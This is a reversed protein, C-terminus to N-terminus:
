STGAWGRFWGNGGVCGRCAAVSMGGYVGWGCGGAVALHGFKAELEYIAPALPHSSHVYIVQSLPLLLPNCWNLSLLIQLSRSLALCSPWRSDLPLRQVPVLPLAAERAGAARTHPPPDPGPAPAPHPLAAAWSVRHM